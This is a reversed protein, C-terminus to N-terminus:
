RGIRAAPIHRHPYGQPHQPIHHHLNRFSTRALPIPHYLNRALEQLLSPTIPIIKHNKHSPSLIPTALKDKKPAAAHLGQTGPACHKM